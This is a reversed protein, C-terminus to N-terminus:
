IDDVPVFRIRADNDGFRGIVTHASQRHSLEEADEAFARYRPVDLRGSSLGASGFPLTPPQGIIILASSNPIISLLDEFYRQLKADGLQRHYFSWRGCLIVRAPQHTEIFSRRVKDFELRTQPTWGGQTNEGHYYDAPDTDSAVFFPWTGGDSAFSTLTLNQNRCVEL